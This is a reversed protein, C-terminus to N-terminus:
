SIQWGGDVVLEQGTVYRGSEAVLYLVAAAIDQMHGQGFPKRGPQTLPGTSVRGARVAAAASEHYPVKDLIPGALITNVRIRDRAYDLATSKGLLTVGARAAGYAGNGNQVPHAAGITTVNVISGGRGSPAMVRVAERMCLFNARLNASQAADWQAVTMDALVERVLLGGCNVVMDPVGHRSALRGFLGIVSAEDEVDVLEPTIRGCESAAERALRGAIEDTAEAIVVHAGAEALLNVVEASGMGGIGTVLALKGELSFLARLKAGLNPLESAISTPIRPEEQM